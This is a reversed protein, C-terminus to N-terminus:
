NIANLKNKQNILLRLNNNLSTIKNRLNKSKILIYNIKQRNLKLTSEPMKRGTIKHVPHTDRVYKLVEKKRSINEPIFGSRVLTTTMKTVELAMTTNQFEEFEKKADLIQHKVNKIVENVRSKPSIAGGKKNKTTKIKKIKSSRKM